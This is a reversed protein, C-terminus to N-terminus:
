MWVSHANLPSTAPHRLRAALLQLLSLSLDLWITFTTAALWRFASSAAGSWQCWAPLSCLEGEGCSPAAACDMESGVFYYYIFLFVYMKVGGGCVCVGGVRERLSLTIHKQRLQLGSLQISLRQLLYQAITHTHCYNGHKATETVDLLM